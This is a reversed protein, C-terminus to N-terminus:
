DMDYITYKVNDIIKGRPGPLARSQSWHKRNYRNTRTKRSVNVAGRTARSVAKNVATRVFPNTAYVFAAGKVVRMARHTRLKSKALKRADEPSFAPIVEKFHDLAVTITTSARLADVMISVDKSHSEALSLDIIM